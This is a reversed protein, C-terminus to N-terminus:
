LREGKTGVFHFSFGSFAVTAIEDWGLQVHRRGTLRVSSQEVGNKSLAISSLLYIRRFLWGSATLLVLFAIALLGTHGGPWSGHPVFILSSSLAPVFSVAYMLGKLWSSVSVTPNVESRVRM